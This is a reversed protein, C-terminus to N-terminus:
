YKGRLLLFNLYKASLKPSNRILDDLLVNRGKGKTPLSMMLLIGFLVEDVTDSPAISQIKSLINTINQSSEVSKNSIEEQLVQILIPVNDPYLQAAKTLVDVREQETFIEETTETENSYFKPKTNSKLRSEGFSNSLKYLAYSM